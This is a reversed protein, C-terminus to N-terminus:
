QLDAMKLIKLKRSFVGKAIDMGILYKPEANEALNCIEKDVTGDILVAFPEEVQKLALGIGKLPVRGAFVKNKGFISTAKSGVLDELQKKFFAKTEDDLGNGKASRTSDQTRSKYRSQGSTSEDRGTFSTARVPTKAQPYSRRTIQIGKSKHSDSSESISVNDKRATPHSEYRKLSRIDKAMNLPVKERLAKHIEKCTIEEVEKGEPARAVFDIDALQKLEKLILDGGRDGDLFVTVEKTKSIGTIQSAVATGGIAIANRIGCKLLRIVDARGECVVISESLAVDPGAPLSKYKTIEQSRVSEKLDESIVMIEPMDSIIGSLIDKARKMIYERKLYRMDKVSEIKMKADCPGIREITEITAAILATEASDLSSPLEINGKSKGKSSIINVEIRGIRGTRQLDRLELESGLLG